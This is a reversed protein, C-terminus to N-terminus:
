RLADAPVGYSQKSGITAPAFPLQAAAARDALHEAESKAVSGLTDGDAREARADEDEEESLQASLDARLM